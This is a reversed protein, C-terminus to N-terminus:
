QPKAPPAYPTPQIGLEKVQRQSAVTEERVFAAFEDPTMRMLQAGAKTLKEKVEPAEAARAIDGALKKAIAPSVGAPAWFGFWAANDMNAVGAEAMTPVQSLIEARKGSTIALAVLKGEKVGAVAGAVPPFWFDVEGKAVAANAEPLSKFSVNMADIGAQKKFQEAVFYIQTRTGLSGFKLQGPKKKALAVLEGVTKVGLAPAAVLAFPQRAYPAIARLDKEPDYPLNTYLGADVAYSISHNLLTHGDAKAQAAALVGPIGPRNEVTVPQGWMQSLKEAMIRGFTDGVNGQPYPIVVRVPQVPYQPEQLSACGAVGLAAMAIVTVLQSKM